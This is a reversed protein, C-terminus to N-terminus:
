VVGAAEKTTMKMTKIMKTKMRASFQRHRHRHLHLHFMYVPLKCTKEHNVVRYFEEHKIEPHPINADHKISYQKTGSSETLPRTTSLLDRITENYIELMSVKYGDLASQVLQSVEEFVEEQSSEPVFVKILRSLISKGMNYYNLAVALIIPQQLFLSMIQKTTLVTTLCYLDYGAFFSTYEREIGITVLITNHLKKRLSEGEVLKVEAEALRFQLESNARMQEEYGTRIELHRYM